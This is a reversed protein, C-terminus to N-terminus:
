YAAALTTLITLALLDVWLPTTRLAGERLSQAALAQVVVGPLAQYVPVAKIDTLELATPGIMVTKDYLAAPDVRGALVDVYSLYTFSAPSISYVIAVGGTAAIEA